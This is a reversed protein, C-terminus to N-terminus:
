LHAATMAVIHNILSLPGSCSLQEDTAHRSAQIASDLADAAMDRTSRLTEIQPISTCQRRVKQPRAERKRAMRDSSTACYTM